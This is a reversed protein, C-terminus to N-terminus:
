GCVSRRGALRAARTMRIRSSATGAISKAVRERRVAVLQRPLFLRSALHPPEPPRESFRNSFALSWNRGKRNEAIVSAPEHMQREGYARRRAEAHAIKCLKLGRAPTQM